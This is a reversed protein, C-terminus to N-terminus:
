LIIERQALHEYAAIISQTLKNWTLQDLKEDINSLLHERIEPQDILAIIKKELADTDWFDVTMMCDLVEAVGSQNSIIVPVHHELAELCAIGFPESVSPMVYVDSQHYIKSVAERDLFYTFHIHTGLKLSAVQEIASSLLDGEGAIVFQIDNRKALISRAAEIFYFVGKQYTLRGLFLITKLSNKSAMVAHKKPHQHRFLGNYAVTIKDAAVGYREIIRNKTYQSVAIIHDAEQLGYQEIDFVEQNLAEGSRDIELAHVQFVLPKGSLRRAEIGALITLWDHAHIMDHPVHAAQQSALAAYRRVETMLNDGYHMFETVHALDDMILQAQYQKEDMYPKLLSHISTISFPVNISKFGDTQYKSQTPNWPLVLAVEIQNTLMGQVIGYCAIGLGGSFNPPFEWGYM